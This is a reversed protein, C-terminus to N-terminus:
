IIDTKTVSADRYVKAIYPPSYRRALKAIAPLARVFISSIKPGSLDSRVLIFVKVRANRIAAKEIESHQMAKDKTLVIWGQHGVAPLWVPDPADDEFHDRHRFVTAGAQTLANYLSDFDLARDLFLPVDPLESTGSRRKSRSRKAAM